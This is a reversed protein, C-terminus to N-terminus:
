KVGKAYNFVAAMSSFELGKYFYAAVGNKIIIKM